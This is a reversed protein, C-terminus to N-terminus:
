PRRRDTPTRRRWPPRRRSRRRPQRTASTSSMSAPTPSSSRALGQGFLPAPASISSLSPQPMCPAPLTSPLGFLSDCGEPMPSSSRESVHLVHHLPKHRQPSSGFPGVPKPHRVCLMHQRGAICRAARPAVGRALGKSCRREGARLDWKMVESQTHHCALFGWRQNVGRCGGSFNRDILALTGGEEDKLEFDWALLGGQVAAFQRKDARPPTRLPSCPRPSHPAWMCASARPRAANGEGLATDVGLWRTRTSTHNSM